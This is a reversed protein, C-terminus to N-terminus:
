RERSLSSYEQRAAIDNQEEISANVEDEFSWYLREELEDELTQNNKVASDALLNYIASDINCVLRVSKDSNFFESFPERNIKIILRSRTSMLDDLSVDLAQAIRCLTENKPNRINNEYQGIMSGSVGLLKGLEKQSLGKEKRKAKIREGTTM